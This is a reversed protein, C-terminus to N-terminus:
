ARVGASLAFRRRERWRGGQEELLVIDRVSAVIPFASKAATALEASIEALRAPDDAHAVTLHPVIASFKGGYPPAEPFRAIVAETLHRFPGDASPILYLVGPFQGTENFTAEFAGFASFVNTLTEEVQTTIKSPPLYPYLVTVHAPVGKAGAPDHRARFPGVLPEAEPVLVVLASESPPQM